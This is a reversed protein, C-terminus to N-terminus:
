RGTARDNETIQDIALGKAAKRLLTDPGRRAALIRTFTRRMVEELRSRVMNTEMSVSLHSEGAAWDIMAGVAHEIISTLIRHRRQHCRREMLGFPLHGLTMVWEFHSAVVGGVNADLDPLSPIGGKHLM